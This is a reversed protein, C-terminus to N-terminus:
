LLRDIEEKIMDMIKPSFSQAPQKHPHFGTKIPLCHEVLARDLRPMETYEWAFCGVCQKLLARVEDKKAVSLKTNAYTPRRV